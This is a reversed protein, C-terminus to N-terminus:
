LVEFVVAGEADCWKSGSGAIQGKSCLWLILWTHEAVEAWCYLRMSGLDQASSAERHLTIGWGLRGSTIHECLSTWFEYQFSVPWTSCSVSWYGREDPKPTRHKKSHRFRKPNQAKIAALHKTIQSPLRGPREITVKPAPPYAEFPVKSFDEVNSKLSDDLGKRKKSPALEASRLSPINRGSRPVVQLEAIVATSAAVSVTRFSKQAQVAQSEVNQQTNCIPSMEHSSASAHPTALKPVDLRTDQTIRQSSQSTRVESLPIDPEAESESTDEDTSSYSDPLQSQLAQAGLQTDEIFATDVDTSAHSPPRSQDKIFSSKPTTKEKWYMHIRDLRALRSSTPGSGDDVFGTHIDTRSESSVQSPFSGYSGNSTSFISTDVTDRAQPVDTHAINPESRLPLISEGNVVDRLSEDGHRAHPEFDLYADALSRFLDDNHRTAPTSIHVLVEHVM